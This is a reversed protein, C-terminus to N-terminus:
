SENQFVTKKKGLNFNVNQVEIQKNDIPRRIKKCRRALSTLGGARVIMYTEKQKGFCIQVMNGSWNPNKLNEHVAM